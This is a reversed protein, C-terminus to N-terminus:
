QTDRELLIYVYWVPGYFTYIRMVDWDSAVWCWLTANGYLHGKTETKVRHVSHKILMQEAFSVSHSLFM